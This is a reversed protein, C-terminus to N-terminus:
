RGQVAIEAMKEADEESKGERLFGAKFTAKLAGKSESSGMGKIKGSETIKAIYDTETKIAEDIDKEFEPKDLEGEKVPPNKGLTDVLRTKTVEPLESANVKEAMIDHAEKLVASEKLRANEQELTGKEKELESKAEQLEKIEEMRKAEEKEAETKDQKGEQAKTRAAEFLQVVKGGAGPTTVFDVSKAAVIKEIIPGKKGEAEGQVAKGLARHSVGIHPALEELAERYPSFVKAKAYVGPGNLGEKYEGGTTLQAALDRLSREPREKDESETPHDWYLHLGPKYVSADRTLMEKSYFGSSGWGPQIIKIEATGDQALAKETLPIFEEGLSDAVPEYVTKAEVETPEGVMIKGGEESIGLRYTKGHEYILYDEDFEKIIPDDELGLKEKLAATLKETEQYSPLNKKALAQAKKIATDKAAQDITSQPIRALANRLHPLDVKGSSDYVPFYRLSRPITKGDDDKKGGAAIHLFASDDLNNIYATDWEAESLVQEVKELAEESLGAEKLKALLEEKDVNAEKVAGNAIRIAQADCTKETGGGKLCRDRADNAIKAWTESQKPTLGKIHKLSDSSTWPM